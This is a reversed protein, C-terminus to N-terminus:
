SPENAIKISCPAEGLESDFICAALARYDVLIYERNGRLSVIEHADNRLTSIDFNFFLCVEKLFLSLCNYGRIISSPPHAADSPSARGLGLLM